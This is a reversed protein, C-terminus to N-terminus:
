LKKAYKEKSLSFQGKILYQLILTNGHEVNNAGCSSLQTKKLYIHLLTSEQRDFVMETVGQVHQVNKTIHKSMAIVKFCAKFYHLVTRLKQLCVM